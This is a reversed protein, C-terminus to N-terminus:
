LSQVRLSSHLFKMFEPSLENDARLLKDATISCLSPHNLLFSCITIISSLEIRQFHQRETQLYDSDIFFIDGILSLSRFYSEINDIITIHVCKIQIIDAFETTEIIKVIKNWVESYNNLAFNLSQLLLVRTAKMENKYDRTIIKLVSRFQNEDDGVLIQLVKQQIENNQLTLLYKEFEQTRKEILVTKQQDIKVNISNLKEINNIFKEM